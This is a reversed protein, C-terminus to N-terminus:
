SCLKAPPPVAAAAAAATCAVTDTAAVELLVNRALKHHIDEKTPQPQIIETLAM